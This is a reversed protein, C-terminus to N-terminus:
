FPLLSVDATREVLWAAGIACALLSGGRIALLPYAPRKRLAYLAGLALVVVALQGLEIGINFKLLATAFQWPPLSLEALVDAFGFGHILGFLFTVRGRRGRFIPRLNDLAALVITVAIAPEIVSAPLLVTRTAALALTISHAVTFATVIGVVPLLAERLSAVPRWGDVGRRMVAPLMLCILFLVHDIGGLIHSTGAKVFSGSISAASVAEAAPQAPDLVRLSATDQGMGIRLLGRHTADVDALVSYRVVPERPLTCPAHLTLAAYAGDSRQELARVAQDDFRCGDIAVHARVYREIAPWAQRVEAWTLRGDGDADLDLAADLDRLAIDIRLERGHATTTLQLYGDSAKHAAAPAALLAVLGALLLRIAIRIM